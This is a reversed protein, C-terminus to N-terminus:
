PNQKEKVNAVIWCIMKDRIVNNRKNARYITDHVYGLRSIDLCGCVYLLSTKRLILEVMIFWRRLPPEFVRIDIYICKGDKLMTVGSPNGQTECRMGTYLIAAYVNCDPFPFLFFYCESSCNVDDIVSANNTVVHCFQNIRKEQFSLTVIDSGSIFM